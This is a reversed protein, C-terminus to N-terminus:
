EGLLDNVKPSNAKIEDIVAQAEELTEHPKMYQRLEAERIVGKSVGQVLQSFEQQSDELMSYSWDIALEYDGQPSLQYYNALVNCAYLFDKLGDELGDRVDDCIDFTDKLTKKIETATANKTEAKTLIGESTGVQKELMSCENMLKNYLSTDRFAPDFVEWFDDDGSQVKRYLGNTPLANDGKFLRPDAGVFVEKLDFEKTIQELTHKIKDIQKDCGYTIPVGYSDTERRNDVPSKIYMFPMKEVNTIAIDKINQWETVEALSILEGNNDTASYRIYLNGEELTYDAWRFYHQRDKVIHEALITCDIIDEGIKKNIVFRNQGVIDFYLKNRAVYPVALVGGIGLERSVIKKLKKLLRTLVEGLLESRLNDGIVDINSDSVTYNALKNAFIATFNIDDKREYNNSFEENSQLIVEDAVQKKGFLALIKNWISKIM